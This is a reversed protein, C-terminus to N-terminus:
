NDRANTEPLHVFQGELYIDGDQEISIWQGIPNFDLPLEGSDAPNRFRIEGEVDDGDDAVELTGRLQGGTWMEYTGPPVDEVEVKFKVRDAHQELEVEASAGPALGTPELEVEIETERPTFPPAQGSGPDALDPTLMASFLTEDDKVLEILKGYPDFDLLQEDEEPHSSFVLSTEDGHSSANLTGRTTGDIALAYDAAPLNSADIGFGMQGPRLAYRARVDSDPDAAKEGVLEVMFNRVPANTGLNDVAAGTCEIGATNTLRIIDMNGSSFGPHDSDWSASGSNCDDFQLTLIGFADMTPGQGDRQDFSLGVPRNLSMTVRDGNVPADGLLWMQEGDNDHTHWVALARGDPLIQLQFGQGNSEPNFWSGTFGAGLMVAQTSGSFILLLLGTLGGAATKLASRKRTPFTKSAAM